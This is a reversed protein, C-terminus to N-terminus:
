KDCVANLWDDFSKKPVRVSAGIRIVRFPPNEQKSVQEM